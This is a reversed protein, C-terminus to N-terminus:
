ERDKEFPGLYVMVPADLSRAAAHLREATVRQVAALPDGREGVLAGRALADARAEPSDLELLRRGRFRRARETFAAESVPAGAYGAVAERIRTGWAEAERPPVVLHIRLEGGGAHRVVEAGQDYVSRRSPGFGVQDLVLSGLMRISEVDAGPGFRYSAAVWATIANYETHVATDGRTPPPVEGARLAGPELFALVRADVDAREVPGVVAIVAREQSFARRLFAEVAAPEIRGVTAATGVAPRGWPHDRGWVAADVERKLADAPSTERATLEAVLAARQRTIAAAELPDRFLAVLLTRTAEDWADPAATLTMSVADKGGEVRLRAGLSDLVSLIPAVVSRAALYAVGEEGEPEDAPGAALLVEVTVVPTGPESRVLIRDQAFAPACVLAASVALILARM